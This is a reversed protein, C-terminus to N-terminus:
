VEVGRGSGNRPCCTGEVRRTKSANHWPITLCEDPAFGRFYLCADAMWNERSQAFNRTSLIFDWDRTWEYGRGLPCEYEGPGVGDLPGPAVASNTGDMYGLICRLIWYIRVPAARPRGSGRVVLHHHRLFTLNYFLYTSGPSAPFFHLLAVRISGNGDLRTRESSAAMGYPPPPETLGDKEPRSSPVLGQRHIIDPAAASKKSNHIHEPPAANDQPPASFAGDGTPIGEAHPPGADELTIRSTRADMFTACFFSRALTSVDLLRTYTCNLSRSPPQQYSQLVTTDVVLQQAQSVLLISFSFGLPYPWTTHVRKIIIYMYQM